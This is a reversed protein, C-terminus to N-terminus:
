RPIPGYVKVLRRAKIDRAGAVDITAVLRWSLAAKFAHPPQKSEIELSANYSATRGSALRADKLFVVSSHVYSERHHARTQRRRPPGTMGRARMTAVMVTSVDTWEEACMLDVRGERVEIERRPNLELTLNITEGLRYPQDAFTVKVGLPLLRSLM